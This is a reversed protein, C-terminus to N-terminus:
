ATMEVVMVMIAAAISVRGSCGGVCINSRGVGYVGYM